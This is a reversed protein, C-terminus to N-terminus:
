CIDIGIESERGDENFEDIWHMLKVLAMCGENETGYKIIM